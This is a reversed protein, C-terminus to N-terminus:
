LLADVPLDSEPHSLLFPVEEARRESGASSGRGGSPSALTGPCGRPSMLQNPCRPEMKGSKLLHQFGSDLLFRQKKFTPRWKTKVSYALVLVSSSDSREKLCDRQSSAPSSTEIGVASSGSVSPFAAAPGAGHRGTCLRESWPATGLPIGM